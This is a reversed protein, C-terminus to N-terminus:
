ISEERHPEVLEVVETANQVQVNPVVERAVDDIARRRELTSVTGIIVLDGGEIVVHTGQEAVRADIALSEELHARLYELPM